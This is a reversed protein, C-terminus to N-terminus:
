QLLIIRVEVCMVLSFIETAFICQYKGLNFDDQQYVVDGRRPSAANRSADLSREGSRRKGNPTKPKGISPVGLLLHQFIDSRQVKSWHFM